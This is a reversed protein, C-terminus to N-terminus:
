DLPTASEKPDNKRLLKRGTKILFYVLGLLLIWATLGGIIEGQQIASLNSTFLVIIDTIVDLVQSLLGIILLGSVIFLLVAGLKRM